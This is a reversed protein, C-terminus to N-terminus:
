RRIIYDTPQALDYTTAGQSLKAFMEENSSYEERNVKVGYIEEFCDIIDQPIYETWVFLNLEKSTVEVRPNPEPCVFGSKTTIQGDEAKQEGGGCATLVAAGLLLGLLTIRLAHRSLGM